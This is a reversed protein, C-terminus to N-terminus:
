ILQLLVKYIGRGKWIVKEMWLLLSYNEIYKGLDSADGNTIGNTLSPKSECTVNINIICSHFGDKPKFSFGDKCIVTEKCPTCNESDSQTGDLSSQNWNPNVPVM